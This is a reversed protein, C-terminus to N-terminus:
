SYFTNQCKEAFVNDCKKCVYYNGHKGRFRLRSSCKSCKLPTLNCNTFFKWVIDYRDDNLDATNM